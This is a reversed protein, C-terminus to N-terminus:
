FIQALATLCLVLLGLLSLVGACVQLRRQLIFAATEDFNKSQINAALIGSYICLGILAAILVHKVLMVLSWNNVFQGLGLYYRDVMTLFVGSLAFILFSAYQWPRFRAFIDGVLVNQQGDPLRRTAPLWVLFLLSYFGVLLVTALMHLANSVVLLVSLLM